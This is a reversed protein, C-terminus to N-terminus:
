STPCLLPEREPEQNPLAPQKERITNRLLFLRNVEEIRPMLKSIYSKIVLKVRSANLESLVEPRVDVEVSSSQLNAFDNLSIKPASNGQARADQDLVHNSSASPTDGPVGKQDDGPRKM